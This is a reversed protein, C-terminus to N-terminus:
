APRKSDQSRAAKDKPVRVIKGALREFKRFPTQAKPKPKMNPNEKAM